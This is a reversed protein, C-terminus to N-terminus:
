ALAIVRFDQYRPAYAENSGSSVLKIKFGTFEVLDDSTFQYELFEDDRSAPVFFDPHGTNKAPDIIRQGTDGFDRLNEYGPFLEWSLEADPTDERILQYLVRFDASSNRFAAVLVKLSTAPNKLDVRRTIYVAAHPDGSPNDSEGDRTYDTIPSNLRSRQYVVIGNMTDLVPSLNSDTTNFQVALTMSRNKPLDTLHTTENIESCVIRPTTLTNPQNLTINEYGKDLFSVESGNASTGSTSRLQSSITTTDSPTLLNFQPIVRNYQFNQSAWIDRGGLNAENNFSLQTDGTALDARPIKVHYKDITRSNSLSDALTHTRNIRDLGVGNLEYKYAVDNANHTREITGEVGRTGIGLQNTGVSDYFIIESNIKVYGKDINAQGDFDVFGATSAVSIIQDGIDLNDSLLVPPTNPEIDQLQVVNQDATMGHNYHEIELVDGSYLENILASSVVDTSGLAVRNSGSYYVLDQGATFEEGHVDKLYITDQSATATITLEAGTGKLGASSTTLGVVDGVAYGNGAAGFASISAVVGGSVVVTAQGGTGNGTVNYLPVNSYTANDYGTGANTVTGTNIPGGVSEIIGTPGTGGASGESVKAGVGLTVLTAAHTTATHQVRLKRPLTKIANSMLRPISQSGSGLNQNYFYATGPQTIFSAKYLKFKLDEFQSPTWISGNQSKFLSGGVYQRTVMVSEANPLSQTNVTREGMQAIWAEYNNTTPALIVIAYETRPELYVPSPFTVKTLVEATPHTNIQSPNLTISAYDQVVQTTPTGLEVTRIQVTVRENQDKNAFYLDISTLFGGSEDTTFSQALPDCDDPPPPPRRVIVLTNKFTEVIGTATYSTEGSSILKSGKLPTANTSSSTLKFTKTGTRWRLPPPPSALPDRFWFAGLLDGYTDAVLRVDTVTAEAGSTRGLIVVGTGTPIYGWYSGRAEDTLSAIDINLVTSSASYATGLSTSTNYPNANFTDEPTNINGEKHDPQAIRMVGAQTGDPAYIEVVEGKVFTGNTMSIEVLKPVMDIGSTSDLFPYHRAVPRFARGVFAVNRSRIHTDPLSSTKISEVFSGIVTGRSNTQPISVAARASSRFLGGLWGRGTGSANSSGSSGGEGSRVAAAAMGFVSGVPPAINRRANISNTVAAMGGAVMGFVGARQRPLANGTQVRQGGDTQVTRVWTDTSPSLNIIGTFEVMNFPNVNEVRSALPQEIWDVETYDLTLLDGTKRVNTDVLPLNTSFDATETNIDPRLALEPKLSFFDLPVNLEKTETNIDSKCDPNGRDMLNTDKFDDVFFGTKFRSLGDADQVQLTKTDLELLSLSTVVELNDIRDELDGIDRMTYRINDVLNIMADQPDYLYAPLTVTAITMANEINPPEQPDSSSTGKIVSLNGLTDLMVKDIRPLYYTYGILSSENPSVIFASNVNGSAGFNRQADVFPCTTTSSTPVVRPRFDLTDSSRLGNPLYPIDNQFREANYSEVTYVDGTDGAPVVFSNFIISLTKCPAPFNARRVLRSYDYFEERQGKDLAFRDTINLFSGVTINQLNTSINSESFTTLEGIVFKMPTLYAIEITTANIRGTIQAVAGSTSGTVREGIIAATNLNLGSVFVLRDLIPKATDISEYVGVINAVDPLGLSIEKDEIRIGYNLNLPLGSGVTNVGVSTYLIDKRQSRVFDKKKSKIGQKKVTTNVVVNTQNTALGNITFSQGDAGLVFQSSDIVGQSGNSYIVSYREADFSEFFASSIGTATINVSLVGSGNTSEGTVQSGIILNSNDLSVNSVDFQALPAYLGKTNNLGVRAVGLVFSPAEYGTIPALTGDCVGTISPCTALTVSNLDAAVASIRNFTPVTAAPKIYKIITGAKVGSWNKGAVTAAAGTISINNVVNFQEPLWNELVTDAVFDAAYGSISSTDQYVSKVDNIGYATAATLSVTVSPDENIIIQEGRVFTGSVQTLEHNVSGGGQNHAYGTAGSSVGRVFAGAPLQTNSLAINSTVRTWLQLDYVYLDFQTSDNTYQSDTLNCTYVKAQGIQTGTGATDSASRQDFLSVISASNTGTAQPAGFVNNLRLRTGFDYSVLSSDVTQKDRPKEVDLVTTGIKESDYGKVYAKGASVKVAMLDDTPTNGQETVQTSRYVGENSVGDNLSNAIEVEFPRVSYNGSEDFTRQAFYDKIISYQSKNQLKKIEGGDLRVLEVFSTDNQDSLNKKILTTTIKFRDAGPAAFNSFGRANDYLQSDEKATIIDERIDLGVRYSPSNSYPDLVLKDTAVDVFTGRIFYVGAGIAVACGTSSADTDILTAVSDGANIPTNGYVFSEEVLLNEGNNLTDITNDQGSEVYKVFLTFHTIESTDGAVKYDDVSVVIGTDEGKLRKGKLKDAYLAVPIGLHENNIKISYYQGDYNINGPIVMSGEKFIHSGFSEIQNQLQSQLTTLERAQVPQGPKFLVKYFNDEKNFDDYYPNINLNTKQPM